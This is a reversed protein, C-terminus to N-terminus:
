YRQDGHVISEYSPPKDDPQSVSCVQEGGSPSVSFMQGGTHPQTYMQGVPPSVLYIQGNSNPQPYMQGSPPSM